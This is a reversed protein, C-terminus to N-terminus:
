GRTRTSPLSPVVSVGVGRRLLARELPREPEWLSRPLPGYPRCIVRTESRFRLGWEPFFTVVFLVLTVLGGSTHFLAGKKTTSPLFPCGELLFSSLASSCRALIDCVHESPSACVKVFVGACVCVCVNM